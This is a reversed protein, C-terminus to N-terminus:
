QVGPSGLTDALVRTQSSLDIPRGAAAVFRDPRVIVVSCDNTDFWAKLTGTADGVTAFDPKDPEGYSLQTMPRVAVYRAGIRKWFTLAEPSLHTRPDEGWGVLAFWPGLADDLLRSVGDRGVVEPQVFMRGVAPRSGPGTVVIGRDYRPMPKYRMEVIYRKLPPVFDWARTLVDRTGATWRNTQRVLLGAAQSIKVMAAAHDRREADYTALIREDALGLKLAALKWGLNAADRIGSNYGQGQWVPMLHAADGAVLM